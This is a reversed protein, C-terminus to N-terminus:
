VLSGPAATAAPTCAIGPAVTVMVTFQTFAQEVIDALATAMDPANKGALGHAQLLGSFIGEMAAATPVPM